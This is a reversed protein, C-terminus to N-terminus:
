LRPNIQIPQKLKALLERGMSLPPHLNNVRCCAKPDLTM